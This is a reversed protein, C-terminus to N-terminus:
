KKATLTVQRAKEIQASVETKATKVHAKYSGAAVSSLFLKDGYQNFQLFDTSKNENTGGMTALLRVGTGDKSRIVIASGGMEFSYEGAPLLQDEIYFAFPISVNLHVGMGAFVVGSAMVAVFALMLNKKM